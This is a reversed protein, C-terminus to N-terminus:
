SHLGSNDYETGPSVVEQVLRLDFDEDKM